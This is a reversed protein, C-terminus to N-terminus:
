KREWIKWTPGDQLVKWEPSRVLYDPPAKAIPLAVHRVNWREIAPAPDRAIRDYDELRLAVHAPDKPFFTSAKSEIDSRGLGTLFTDLAVREDIDDESIKLGLGLYNGALPRQNELIAALNVFMWDGAVTANPRLRAIGPAERQAAYDRYIAMQWGAAAEAQHARIQFAMGVYATLLVALVGVTRRGLRVNRVVFDAMLAVVFLPLTRDLLFWEWHYSATDLGTVLHHNRLLISSIMLLLLPLLSRRRTWIWPLAPLLFILSFKPLSLDRTRPIKAFLTNRVAWSPDANRKLAASSILSPLGVVVGIWGSQWYVRRRGVDVLLGLLLALGAATWYYFYIYFLVGFSVGSAVVRGATPRDRARMLLYIHFWLFPLSVGPNIIRFHQHLEVHGSHFYDAFGPIPGVFTQFFAVVQKYFPHRPFNGIDAVLFMALSSALWPRGLFQRLILYLSGSLGFGAFLRWLLNIGLPGLGLVRAAVGAPIFVAPPYHTADGSVSFSDAFHSAGDYYATAAFPTYVTVDDDYLCYPGGLKPWFYLNPMIGLLSGVLVCVLFAALDRSRAPPPGEEEVPSPAPGATPDGAWFRALGLRFIVWVAVLAERMNIKSVGARRNEFLIPTEGFRCGITRCLYLIEELYSYGRSRVRDLDVQALKSVRYCRFSGSNDRTRLGLLLRAYWNISTSMLKRKFNFGGEVGGGEVYRSGIMVDHDRMGALLAPIFRPPHSFDADLNLLLDFGRAVAFRMAELTATGLGLKGARHIVHIEPLTARLEEAIRGTGDPSNDDIVLISSRPAYKRIEDVLERLNGAENYTALSILLRPSEGDAENLTNSV